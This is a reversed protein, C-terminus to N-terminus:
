EGRGAHQEEDRLLRGGVQDVLERDLRQTGGQGAQLALAEDENDTDGQQEGGEERGAPAGLVLVLLVVVVRRVRRARVGLGHRAAVGRRGALGAVGEEFLGRLVGVGAPARRVRFLAAVALGWM